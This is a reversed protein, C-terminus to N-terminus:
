IEAENVITLVEIWKAMYYPNTEYLDWHKRMNDKNDVRALVRRNKLKGVTMNKYRTVKM